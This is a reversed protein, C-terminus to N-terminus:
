QIEIDELLEQFVIELAALEREDEIEEYTIENDDQIIQRLIHADDTGKEAVLLYKEGMFTTEEIVEFEIKEGDETVFPIVQENSGM